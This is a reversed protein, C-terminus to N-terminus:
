PKSHSLRKSIVTAHLAGDKEWTGKCIVRDGDKVQTPDIRNVKKSGHEQSVWQTSSDYRVTREVNSGVQRVTLISKDPSSRAIVGECRGLKATKEAKGGAPSEKAEQNRSGEQAFMLMSLSFAFLFTSLLILVKKPM